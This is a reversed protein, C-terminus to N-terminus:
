FILKTKSPSNPKLPRSKNKSGYATALVLRTLEIDMYGDIHIYTHIYVCVCVCM